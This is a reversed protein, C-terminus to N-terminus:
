SLAEERFSEMRGSSSEIFTGVVLLEDWIWQARRIRGVTSLVVCLERCLSSYAIFIYFCFERAPRKETGVKKGVSSLGGFVALRTVHCVAGAGSVINEFNNSEQM